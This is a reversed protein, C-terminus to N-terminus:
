VRFNQYEHEYREFPNDTEIVRNNNGFLFDLERQENFIPTVDEAFTLAVADAMDPSKGLRDRIQKKSELCKRGKDDVEYTPMALEQLLQPNNPIIGGRKLWEAMKCWMETRKNQFQSDLSKHGFNIDNVFIGWSSLIDVVGGGVGTGDVFIQTPNRENVYRKIVMALDMLSLDKFSIPEELLLGKRFCLVSRDAGFRAVDVGLILPVNGLFNEDISKHSAQQVDFLSILNNSASATFDCLMERNFTDESVSKRYQEIDAKDLADTQYCTFKLSTWGEKGSVGMDFLESFLNIGKPTGIFLAWGKSDLLAPYVIEFWLEKPMQAVEDIVAGALKSGRLSDPNDAGFLRIEAGNNFKIGLESERFEVLDVVKKEVRIKRFQECSEKLAKWAILKAQKLEPAVYAYLGKNKDTLAKAILESIALTTKGARRHVALVTFRTQKEFCELQWKRPEFNYNLNLEAM